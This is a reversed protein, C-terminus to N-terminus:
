EEESEDDTTAMVSKPEVVEKEFTEKTEPISNEHEQKNETLGAQRAWLVLISPLVWVSSLFSFLITLATITGFQQMPVLISQSLVGFSLVTTMAAGFLSFGTNKVTNNVAKELSHHEELEEIFRHSIHIAYTVGLGITLAGILTTMVNLTYGIVVMTGLIWTLVLLVPIITLVGLLPQGDNFWFVATLVISSLIITYIISQIMTATITDMVVMFIPPQGTAVANIESSSEIDDLAKMDKNLEDSVEVYYVNKSKTTVMIYSVTYENTEEDYYIFNKIMSPQNIGEGIFLWDLLEKVDADTDPVGDSNGDKSNFLEAFTANYFYGSENSALNRMGNLASFIGNEDGSIYTDDILLQNQTEDIAQFVANTALNEGSIYIFSVEGASAGFNDQYYNFQKVVEVEQPLFDEANFESSIQSGGYGAVLTLVIFFALTKEPYKLALISGISMFKDSLANSESGMKKAKIIDINIQSLVEEGKNKYYRAIVIRCAPLFTVFIIFASLIGLGTQIGFEKIPTIESSLNSFFGIMTTITAFLLASGVSVVSIQNSKDIDGDEVVGERYRMTLHIGYDVGLGILLIPIITLFFSPEFDLIVGFAFTWIISIFLSVLTLMMDIGSRFTLYLVLLIFGLVFPMLRTGIDEEFQSNIEADMAGQGLSYASTGQFKNERHEMSITGMVNEVKAVRELAQVSNEGERNSNDLILTIITSKATTGNEEFEGLLPNISASISPDEMASQVASKIEQNSIGEYFTKLESLNDSSVNFQSALLNPLSVISNSKTQQDTLSDSIDEDSVFAIELELMDVFTSNSIVDNSKILTVVQYETSFKEGIDTMADVVENEPIFGSQSPDGAPPATALVTFMIATVIMIAGIVTLPNRNIQEAVSDLQQM